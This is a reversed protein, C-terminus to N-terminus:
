YLVRFTLSAQLSGRGVEYPGSGTLPTDPSRGPSWSLEGALQTVLWTHNVGLFLSRRNERLRGPGAFGAEGDASAEVRASATTRDWGVGGAVGLALMDKGAELRLSTVRPEVVTRAGHAELEGFRVTGVRHHMATLTVGPLTFSERLIGVRVGAGLSAASGSFGAGTPLRVVRLTAVGDVSGMGGVTAAPSFGDFVGAAATIRGALFARRRDRAPAETLDPLSFSALSGGLDIVVRPSGELRHGATSPSVPFAGGASALLGLSGTLAHGALAADACREALPSGDGAAGACSAALAAAGGQGAAPAALALVALLAFPLRRGASL